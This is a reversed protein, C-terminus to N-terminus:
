DIGGDGETGGGCLAYGCPAGKCLPPMLNIIHKFLIFSCASAQEKKM